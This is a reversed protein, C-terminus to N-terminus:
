YRRGRVIPDLSKLDKGDGDKGHIAYCYDDEGGDEPGLDGKMVCTIVPLNNQMTNKCPEGAVDSKCLLGSGAPKDKVFEITITSLATGREVKWQLTDSAKVKKVMNDDSIAIQDDIAFVKIQHNEPAPKPTPACSTLVMFAALGICIWVIRDSNKM